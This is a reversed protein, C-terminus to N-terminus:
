WGRLLLGLGFALAILVLMVGNRPSTKTPTAAATPIAGVEGRRTVGAGGNRGAGKAGEVEAGTGGRLRGAEDSDLSARRESPTILQSVVLVLGCEPCFSEQSLVAHWENPIIVTLASAVVGGRVPLEGSKGFAHRALSTPVIRCGAAKIAAGNGCTGGHQDILTGFAQPTSMAGLRMAESFKLQTSV